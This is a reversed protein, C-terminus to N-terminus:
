IKECLIKCFITDRVDATKIRSKDRADALMFHLGDPMQRFTTREHENITYIPKRTKKFARRADLYIYGDKKRVKFRQNEIEIVCLVPAGHAAPGLQVIGAQLETEARFAVPIIFIALVVQKCMFM